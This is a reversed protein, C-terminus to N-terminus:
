EVDDEADPEDCDDLSSGSMYELTTLLEDHWAEGPNETLPFYSLFIHMSVTAYAELADQLDETFHILFDNQNDSNYEFIRIKVSGHCPEMFVIDIDGSKYILISFDECYRHCRIYRNGRQMLVRVQARAELKAAHTVAEMACHFARDIFAKKEERKIKESKTM